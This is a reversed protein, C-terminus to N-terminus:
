PNLIEFWRSANNSQFLRYGESEDYVAILCAVGEMSECVAIAEEPSLVMFATALGDAQMCTPAIVSVSAIHREVPYGKAPDIIHTYTKGEHEFYNRYDGSTALAAGQLSSIAIPQNPDQLVPNEVALRWAQNRANNGEAYIEGGVEVMFRALNKERLMQAVADVGYGKAIASLNLTLDPLTKRLQGNELVLHQFGFRAQAAQIAEPEPFGRRDKVGFGWLEILPALTPDFRGNTQQAIDLAAQVVVATEASLTIAADPHLRNFRSVESSEKWHSMLHDVRDLTKQIESSLDKHASPNDTIVKVSYFTGMTQGNFHLVETQRGCHSLLFVLPLLFLVLRPQHKQRSNPPNM